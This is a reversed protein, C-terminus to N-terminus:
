LVKLTLERMVKLDQMCRFNFEFSFLINLDLVNLLAADFLGSM